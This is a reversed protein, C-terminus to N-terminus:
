HGNGAKTLCCVASGTLTEVPGAKQLANRLHLGQDHFGNSPGELGGDLRDVWLLWLHNGPPFANGGSQSCGQVGGPLVNGLNLCVAAPKCNIWYRVDLSQLHAPRQCGLKNLEGEPLSVKRSRVDHCDCWSAASILASDVAICRLSIGSSVCLFAM